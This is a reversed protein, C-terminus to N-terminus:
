LAIMTVMDYGYEGTVDGNKNRWELVPAKYGSFEIECRFQMIAGEITEPVVPPMPPPEIYPVCGLEEAYIFFAYCLM